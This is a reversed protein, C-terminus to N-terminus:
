LQPVTFSAATLSLTLSIAGSLPTVEFDAGSGPSGLSGTYGITGDRKFVLGYGGNALFDFGALADDSIPTGAFVHQAGSGSASAAPSAGFPQTSMDYEAILVGAPATGSPAVNVGPRPGEYIRIFVNNTTTAQIDNAAADAMQEALENYLRLTM